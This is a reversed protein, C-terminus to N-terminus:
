FNKEDAYSVQNIGGLQITIYEEAQEFADSNVCIAVREGSGQGRFYAADHYFSGKDQIDKSELKGLMTYDKVDENELNIEYPVLVTGYESLDYSFAIGFYLYEYADDDYMVKELYITNIEDQYLIIENEKFEHGERTFCEEPLDKKYITLEMSTEEQNVIQFGNQEVVDLINVKKFGFLIITLAILIIVIVALFIWSKKKM